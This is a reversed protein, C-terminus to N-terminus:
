YVFAPKYVTSEVKNHTSFGTHGEQIEIIDKAKVKNSCILCLTEKKLSEGCKYCFVHGCKKVAIAKKYSLESCCAYCLFKEGTSKIKLNYLKKM